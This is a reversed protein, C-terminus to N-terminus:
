RAAEEVGVFSPGHLEALALVLSRLDRGLPCFPALSPPCKVALLRSATRCRCDEGMKPNSDPCALNEGAGQLHHNTATFARTEAMKGSGMSFDSLPCTAMATAADDSCTVRGRARGDQSWGPQQGTGAPLAEQSGREYDEGVTRPVLFRDGVLSREQFRLSVRDSEVGYGYDCRRRSRLWYLVIAYAWVTACFDQSPGAPCPIVITPLM